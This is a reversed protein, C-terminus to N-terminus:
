SVVEVIFSPLPDIPQRTSFLWCDAISVPEWDFADPAYRRIVIQPHEKEGALDAGIMDFRYRKM